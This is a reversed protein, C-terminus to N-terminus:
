IVAILLRIFEKTKEEVEDIQKVEFHFVKSLISKALIKKEYLSLKNIETNFRCFEQFLKKQEIQISIIKNISETITDRTNWYMKDFILPITKNNILEQTHLTKIVDEKLSTASILLTNKEKNQEFQEDIGQYIDCRNMAEILKKTNEYNSNNYNIGILMINKIIKITSFLIAESVHMKPNSIKLKKADLILESIKENIYEENYSEVTLLEKMKEAINNVSDNYDITFIDKNITIVKDPYISDKLFHNDFRTNLLEYFKETFTNEGSINEAVYWKIEDEIYFIDKSGDRLTFLIYFFSSIYSFSKKTYKLVINNNAHEILIKQYFDKRDINEINSLIQIKTKYEKINSINILEKQFSSNFLKSENEEHHYFDFIKITSINRKKLYKNLQFKVDYFNLKIEQKICYNTDILINEFGSTEYKNFRTKHVTLTKSKESKTLDSYITKNNELYEFFDKSTESLNYELVVKFFDYLVKSKPFYKTELNKDSHLKKLETKTINDYRAEEYTRM